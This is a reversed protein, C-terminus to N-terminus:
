FSSPKFIQLGLYKLLMSATDANGQGHNMAIQMPTWDKGMSHPDAGYECLAHVMPVDNMFSAIHLLTYGQHSCHASMGIHLLRRAFRVDGAAIAVFLWRERQQETTRERLHTDSWGEPCAWTTEWDEGETEEERNIMMTKHIMDPLATARHGHLDSGWRMM